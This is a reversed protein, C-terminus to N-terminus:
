RGIKWQGDPQKCYNLRTVGTNSSSDNSILLNRCIGADTDRTDLVQVRGSNDTDPNSWQRSKGDPDKNLSQIVTQQLLQWDQEDFAVVTTDKLWQWNSAWLAGPVLFILIIVITLRSKSISM